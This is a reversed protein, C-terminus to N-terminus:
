TNPCGSRAYTWTWSPRAGAERKLREPLGGYTDTNRVSWGHVLVVIRKQRAM